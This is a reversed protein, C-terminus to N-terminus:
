SLADRGLCYLIHMGCVVGTLRYTTPSLACLLCYMGRVTGKSWYSTPRLTDYQIIYRHVSTPPRGTTGTIGGVDIPLAKHM